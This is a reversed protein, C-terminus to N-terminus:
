FFNSKQYFRFNRSTKTVHEVIKSIEEDIQKATEESYPKTFGFENQGNADYYTINGIKDNLGYVPMTILVNRATIARHRWGRSHM